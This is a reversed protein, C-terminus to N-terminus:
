RLEKDLEILERIYDTVTLNRKKCQKEIYKEMDDDVRFSIIKDKTDKKILSLM